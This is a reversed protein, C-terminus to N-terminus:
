TDSDRSKEEAILASLDLRDVAKRILWSRSVRAIGADRCQELMADMAEVDRAYSSITLTTYALPQRLSHRLTPSVRHPRVVFALDPRSPSLRVPGIGEMTVIDDIDDSM